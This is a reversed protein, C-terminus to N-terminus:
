ITIIPTISEGIAPWRTSCFFFFEDMGMTHMHFTKSMTRTTINDNCIEEEEPHADSSFFFLDCYRVTHRRVTFTIALLSHACNFTRLNHYTRSDIASARLKVVAFVFNCFESARVFWLLYRRVRARLKRAGLYWDSGTRRRHASSNSAIPAYFDALACHCRLDINDRRRERYLRDCCRSYLPHRNHACTHWAYPHSNSSTQAIRDDCKPLMRASYKNVIRREKKKKKEKPTTTEDAAAEIYIVFKLIYLLEKRQRGAGCATM